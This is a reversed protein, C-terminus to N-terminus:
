IASNASRLERYEKVKKINFDRIAEAVAAEISLIQDKEILGKLAKYDVLPLQVEILGEVQNIYKNVATRIIMSKSMGRDNAYNELNEHDSSTMKFSVTYEKDEKGVEDNEEDVTEVLVTTKQKVKKASM